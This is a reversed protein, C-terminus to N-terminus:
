QKKELKTKHVYKDSMRKYHWKVHNAKHVDKAPTNKEKSGDYSAIRTMNSSDNNIPDLIMQEPATSSLSLYKAALKRIRSPSTLYVYETKLLSIKEKEENLQKEISAFEFSLTEVERKMSFLVYGSLFIVSLGIITVSRQKM